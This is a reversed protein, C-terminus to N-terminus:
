SVKEIGVVTVNARKSAISAVEMGIFSSGIIVVNKKKEDTGIAIISVIATTLTIRHV